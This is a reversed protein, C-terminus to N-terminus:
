GPSVPCGWLGRGNPRPLQGLDTYPRDGREVVVPVVEKRSDIFLTM